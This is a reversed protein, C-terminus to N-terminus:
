RLQDNCGWNIALDQHDSGCLVLNAIEVNIEVEAVNEQLNYDTKNLIRTTLRSVASAVFGSNDRRAPHSKIFAVSVTVVSSASRQDARLETM